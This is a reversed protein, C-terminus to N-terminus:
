AHPVGAPLVLGIRLLALTRSVEDVFVDEPLAFLETRTVARRVLPLLRGDARHRETMHRQDSPGRLVADSM